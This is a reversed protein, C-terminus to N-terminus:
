PTQQPNLSDLFQRWKESNESSIDLFKVGYRNGKEDPRFDAWVVQTTSEIAQLESGIAFFIKIRLNEGVRLREPLYIKLGEESADEAHGPHSINSDLSSYELPLNLLFRPFKRRLLGAIRVGPEKKGM